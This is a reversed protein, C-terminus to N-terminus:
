KIKTFGFKYGAMIVIIGIIIMAWWPLTDLKTLRVIGTFISWGGVSTVAGILALKLVRYEDSMKGFKKKTSNKVCARGVKSYGKQCKKSM